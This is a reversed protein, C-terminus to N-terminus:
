LFGRPAKEPDESGGALKGSLTAKVRASHASPCAFMSTAKVCRAGTQRLVCYYLVRTRATERSPRGCPAM